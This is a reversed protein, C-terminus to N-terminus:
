LDKLCRVHYKFLYDKQIVSSIMRAETDAEIVYWLNALEKDPSRTSSWWFGGTIYAFDTENKSWHGYPMANFGYSDTGKPEWVSEAKIRGGAIDNGGAYNILDQWDKTTPIHWGDPCLGQRKSFSDEECEGKCATKWSYLFGQGGCKDGKTGIKCIYDKAYTESYSYTYTAIQYYNDIVIGNDEIPIENPIINKEYLSITKNPNGNGDTIDIVRGKEDTITLPNGDNDILAIPDGDADSIPINNITYPKNTRDLILIQNGDKDFILPLPDSISKVTDGNVDFITKLGSYTFNINGLQLEKLNEAMWIQKGIQVTNYTNGNFTTEGTIIGSNKCEMGPNVDVIKDEEGLQKCRLLSSKYACTGLAEPFECNDYLKDKFCGYRYPDYATKEDKDNKCKLYLQNQVCFNDTTNYEKSDCLAYVEKNDCFEIYPNFKKEGCDTYKEIKNGMCFEKTPDYKDGACKKYIANEFCFTENKQLIPEKGCLEYLIKEVCVEKSPDYEESGCIAPPDGVEGCSFTFFAIAVIQIYKTM